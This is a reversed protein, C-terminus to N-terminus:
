ALLLCVDVYVSLDRFIHNESELSRLIHIIMWIEVEFMQGWFLVKVTMCLFTFNKYSSNSIMFINRM